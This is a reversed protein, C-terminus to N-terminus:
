WGHADPTRQSHRRRRWSGHHAFGRVQISRIFPMAFGACAIVAAGACRRIFSGLSRQGCGFCRRCSLKKTDDREVFPSWCSGCRNLVERTKAFDEPMRGGQAQNPSDLWRRAALLGGKAKVALHSLEELRDYDPSGFERGVPVMRDWDQFDQQAHTNGFFNPVTATM